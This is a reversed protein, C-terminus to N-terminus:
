SVKGQEVIFVGVDESATAPKEGVITALITKDEAKAREVLAFVSKGLSEARDILDLGFGSPYKASLLSSLTMLQSTSLMGAATGQFSFSGDGDFVLGPIGSNASFDKLKSTRQGRLVDLSARTSVLSNEKATKELLRAHDRMAQEYRVEDALAKELEAQHASTDPQSEIVQRDEHYSPEPPYDPLPKLPYTEEHKVHETLSVELELLKKRLQDIQRELEVKNTRVKNVQANYSEVDRRQNDITLREKLYVAEREKVRNRALEVGAAHLRKAADIKERILAVDPKSVVPLVIEGYAKIEARLTEASKEHLAIQHNLDDTRVYFLDTFFQSRERESMNVLHNQDLLFPNLFQKLANVRDSVPKGDRIFVIERARTGNKGRYWERTISGGAFELVVQAEEAGHRIIDSPFAGGFAWRVANLITTKGQQIEGYFLILPKNLAISVDEILGLNKISLKTLKM